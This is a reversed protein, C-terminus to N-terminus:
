VNNHRMATSRIYMRSIIGVSCRPRNTVSTHGAFLASAISIGHANLVRTPGLFRTNCPLGSGGISPAIRTSLPAWQLTYASEATVQPFVALGISKHNQDHVQTPRLICLNLRIRWTAVIPWVVIKRSRHLFPQVSRNATQTTSEPLGFSACTWNYEGPPALIGVHFLVNACRAFVISGDTQQPSAAKHWTLKVM